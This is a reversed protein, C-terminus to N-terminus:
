KEPFGALDPDKKMQTHRKILVFKKIFFYVFFKLGSKNIIM